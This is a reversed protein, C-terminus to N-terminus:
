HGGPATATELHLEFRATETTGGITATVVAVAHEGPLTAGSGEFHDGKAVLVVDAYDKAAVKVRVTAGAIPRPALQEDLLWVEFRGSAAAVLELHGGSTSKVLGGHPAAHAHEGAAAHNGGAAAGPMKGTLVYEIPLDAFRALEKGGKQYVVSVKAGTTPAPKGTATWAADDATRTMALQEGAVTLTVADFTSAPLPDRAGDTVYLRHAGTKPELVIEIHHLADMLVLGGHAPDHGGHPKAPPAPTTAPGTPAQVASGPAPGNAGPAENGRAEDKSKGKGCATLTAAAALALLASRWTKPHQVISM